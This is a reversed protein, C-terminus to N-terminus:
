LPLAATIKARISPNLDLLPQDKNSLNADLITISIPPWVRPSLHRTKAPFYTVIRRTCRNPVGLGYVLLYHMAPWSLNAMFEISTRKRAVEYLLIM